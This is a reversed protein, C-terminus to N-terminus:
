TFFLYPIAGFVGCLLWTLVVILLGETRMLNDFNRNFGGYWRCFQGFTVAMGSAFLFPITSSYEGEICAVVAPLLIICGFASIIIGLASAVRPFKM